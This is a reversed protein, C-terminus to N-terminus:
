GRAAIERTSSASRRALEVYALAHETLEAVEEDRLERVVRAPSGVILSRPSFVKGQTVLAGAGVISREGIVAGNLIVAGMGILTRDGVTCGHLIVRHGLTVFEGVLCPTGRDVHIVCGDQVNSSAGIRIGAIDGRLVAAYWVSADEALEVEGVVEANWSVYASPHVRPVKDEFSHIM